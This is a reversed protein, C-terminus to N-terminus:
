RAKSQAGAGHGAASTLTARSSATSERTPEGSKQGRRGGDFIEKRGKTGAGTEQDTDPRSQTNGDRARGTTSRHGQAHISGRDVRRCFEALLLADAVAHTITLAPFLQQARRKTVNKDGMSRCGLAAQWQAPMVQDFPIEVAALAMLLAGYGRGFTFASTVGMKGAKGHGFVGAHVRELVARAPGEINAREQLEHLTDFLDRDTAPMKCYDIVQGGDSLAAIGGSVGPDIGIYIM